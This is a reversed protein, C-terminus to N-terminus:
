RVYVYVPPPYRLFPLIAFKVSYYAVVDGRNGTRDLKGNSTQPLKDVYQIQRPAHYQPLAAALTRLVYQQESPSPPLGEVVLVVRQGLREDPLGVVLFQHDAAALLGQAAVAREVPEPSVKVGGSNIVWDYRGLWRFRQADLLEVQDNTVILAHQTVAGQLTLCGRTDTGIRTSGLVRFADSTESGNLARLAVHSATETMGYTSYVPSTFRMRITKELAPSVPAGGILTAHAANLTTLNRELLSQLQLPVVALFDPQVPFPDLLRASPPIGVVDMGIELARALMMMGGIYAADICLLATHQATLLLARQTNRISATMQQRTINITTPPGTSGSTPVSFSAQGQKWRWCFVLARQLPAPLEHYGNLDEPCPLRLLTDSSIPALSSFYLTSM